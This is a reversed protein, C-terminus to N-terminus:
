KQPGQYSTTRRIKKSFNPIIDMCNKLQYKLLQLARSDSEKLLLADLMKYDLKLTCPLYKIQEYPNISFPQAFCREMNEELSDEYPFKGIDSMLSDGNDFIPAERIQGTEQNIIVGLNNFHRDQNLILADLRLVNGLYESVDYDTYEKFFDITYQIREKVDSLGRVVDSLSRGLMQEHIRQFSQFSENEKTFEMSKCGKRNNVICKEYIVYNTLNSCALVKSVLCEATDEYGKLNQKYWYGNDYFKPQSGKSSGCTKVMAQPSLKYNIM